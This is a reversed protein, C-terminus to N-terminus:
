LLDLLQLNIWALRGYVQIYNYQPKCEWIWDWREDSLTADSKREVMLDEIIKHFAEQNASDVASTGKEEPKGLIDNSLDLVCKMYKCLKDESIVKM